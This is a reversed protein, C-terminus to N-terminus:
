LKKLLVEPDLRKRYDVDVAAYIIRGKTNIIYTGPLPLEGLSNEQSRKLDIGFKKYIAGVKDGLKFAIGFRKAIHNDKDQYIDFEINERAKFKAIEKKTDPTLIIVKYGKAEIQKKYEGYTKLELQCYPCWSGRYFKLVVPQKSYFNTFPTGDLKFFPVQTGQRVSKEEIGSEKLDLMAKKLEKKIADPTKKSSAAARAELIETLSQKAFGSTALIFTLSFILLKM